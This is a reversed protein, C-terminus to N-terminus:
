RFAVRGNICMRVFIFRLCIYIFPLKNIRYFGIDQDEWVVAVDVARSAATAVIEDSDCWKAVTLEDKIKCCTCALTSQILKKLAEFTVLHFAFAKLAKNSESSFPAGLTPPLPRGLTAFFTQQTKKCKLLSIYMFHHFQLIYSGNTPERGRSIWCKQHKGVLNRQVFKNEYKISFTHELIDLYMEWVETWDIRRKKGM